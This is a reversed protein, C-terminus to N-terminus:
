ATATAAARTRSEVYARWGGFETIERAGELGAPECIFGSVESGDDLTLKGIGLPKPIGAVFRAFGEPTLSWIELAIGPGAFGPARALGPKPPVTGALAYLRYDPATTGTRVLRGGLAALERNLPMGSLHAGVVAIPLRDESPAAVPPPTLALDLGSGCGAARHLAAAFPALAEDSDRPGVLQVGFPLGDATLGAPVAIAACGFFNAFNTFRGFRANLAIPDAMMATVTQIDPSTPLLLADVKAWEAEARRRHGELAYLGRFADAASMGRAGAIITRVTPDMEAEHGAMFAEVAALREAVFPGEYLLAAAERFPRYDFEVIEAGLEAARGIATEYLSRYADNGFFEREAAAPVGLRLRAPLATTGFRRAYIDAADFGEMVRRAELGDAVHAAFVSVVDISRCAPVLGTTSVRGPSPKIGVINNFAAPVRGSGATDTGLAFAAVGAAVAVASGSSSGGSVYDEDFVSRPAGYPSRTGNLGTAFQDLNTKGVLLAGAAELRAVVTADASPQYAFAPCAATTPLGAADINDKVAFPLGWLPLSNPEPARAVLDAAAARLAADPVRSIFVAPDTMAALREILAEVLAAPTLGDAYLARLADFALIRPLTM